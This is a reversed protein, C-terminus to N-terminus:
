TIPDYDLWENFKQHWGDYSVYYEKVHNRTRTKLIVSPQKRGDWDIQQYEEPYFGGEIPEGKLDEMFIMPIPTSTQHKVVRFVEKTWTGKSEKGFIGRNANLRVYAGIPPLVSPHSEDDTTKYTLMTDVALDLPRQKTTSHIRNNYGSVFKPLFDIWRLTDTALFYRSLSTRITRIAREVGPAKVSSTTSYNHIDHDKLWRQVAKSWFAGERDWYIRSIGFPLKAILDELGSIASEPKKNMIPFSTLYKSYTDYSLFSYLYGDNEPRCLQMDMLDIQVIEGCFYSKIRNRSYNRRAPRFRTYTSQSQLYEKCDKLSMDKHGEKRAQKYLARPGRLAGSSSGYYIRALRVEKGVKSTHGANPEPVPDAGKVQAM